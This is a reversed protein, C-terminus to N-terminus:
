EDANGAELRGDIWQTFDAEVRQAAEGAQASAYRRFYTWRGVAEGDLAAYWL